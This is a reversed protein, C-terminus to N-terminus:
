RTSAPELARQGVRTPSGRLELGNGGSDPSNARNLGVPLPKVLSAGWQNVTWADDTLRASDVISNYMIALGFAGGQGLEEIDQWRGAALLQGAADFQLVAVLEDAEASALSLKFARLGPIKSGLGIQDEDIDFFFYLFVYGEGVAAIRHPPGMRALVGDITQAEAVDLVYQLDAGYNNGIRNTIQTCASLGLCCVLAVLRIM